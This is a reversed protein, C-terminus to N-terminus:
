TRVGTMPSPRRGTGTTATVQNLGNNAYSTAANTPIYVYSNNSVSRTILQSAPSSSYGFVVDQGTSALDHTLGSLRSAGDYSWYTWSRSGYRGGFDARPRRLFLQCTRSVREGLGLGNDYNYGYDAFNADPWAIRIRRGALDYLYAVM